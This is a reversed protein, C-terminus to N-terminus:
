AHVAELCVEAVTQTALPQSLERARTAMAILNARSGILETITRALLECTLDSEAIVIAGGNDSLYRANATQHDDVAYPFPVLVSAVGVAALEAITLAGARCVVVDAWAYAAAMDEIFPVIKGPIGLARYRSQTTELHRDGAQHWVDMIFNGGINGIVEPIVQNLVLAGQSGGLVLLRPNEGERGRLRQEPAMIEFLEPRVPNGTVRVEPLSTFTGPFAAMVRDALPALLRNTLGAIANQEHIFLPIRMLWAALGGPGSVFGGMGLVVSPRRRSLILLSQFLALGLVVPANIWKLIGKGRLGSINITLLQYGKQPVVRSELGKATGLWLLPIGKQRLYDAVALAPYVHGGTGGAMILIPRPQM